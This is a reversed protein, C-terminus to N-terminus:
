VLLLLWLEPLEARLVLSGHFRGSKIKWKGRGRNLTATNFLPIHLPEVNPIFTNIALLQVRKGQNPTISKTSLDKAPLLEM